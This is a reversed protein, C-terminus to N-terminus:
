GEFVEKRTGNFFFNFATCMCAGIASLLALSILLMKFSSSLGTPTEEEGGGSTINTHNIQHDSDANGADDVVRGFSRNEIQTFNKSDAPHDGQQLTHNKADADTNSGPSKNSVPTANKAGVFNGDEDFTRNKANAGTNGHHKTRNTADSGASSNKDTRGTVDVLSASSGKGTKNVSSSEVNGDTTSGASPDSRVPHPNKNSSTFNDDGGTSSKMSRDSKDSSNNKGHVIAGSNDAKNARSGM